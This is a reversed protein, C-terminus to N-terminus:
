QCSEMPVDLKIKGALPILKDTFVSDRIPTLVQCECIFHPLDEVAKGCLQCTPDVNFQNFRARNSQLIYSGTLMKARMGAALINYAPSNHPWIPHPSNINVLSLNMYQLSVRSTAQTILRNFWYDYVTTKIVRKWEEPTYDIDLASHIMSQLGYQKAIELVYRFWSSRPSTQLAIQRRGVEKLNSNTDLRTIAGYLNLTKVHIEAEIPLLGILLYIAEKAVIRGFGQINRLIKRYTIELKSIQSQTLIVAELGYTFRPLIYAQIIKRSIAPSLGDSGYLGAPMLAFTAKRGTSARQEILIDQGHNSREIGLHVFNTTTDLKVGGYYLNTCTKRGFCTLTTKEPNIKYRHRSANDHVEDLMVQLNYESNAMLLVDDACTPSGIQVTGITLGEQDGMLSDLLNHIFLKYLTASLVGGQRVGQNVAYERSKLGHAVVFERPSDYLNTVAEWIGQQTGICALKQLLIEHDVTDFAKAADLTVIYVPNKQSAQAIAETVCVAAMLPSRKSTFGYQLDNAPLVNKLRQLLVHELIKGLIPTITIGRYNTHLLPNKDKKVFPIKRGTKLIDPISDSALIM